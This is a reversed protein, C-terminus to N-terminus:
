IYKPEFAMDTQHLSNVHCNMILLNTFCNISICPSWINRYLKSLPAYDKDANQNFNFVSFGTITLTANFTNNGKEVVDIHAALKEARHRILFLYRFLNSGSISKLHQKILM